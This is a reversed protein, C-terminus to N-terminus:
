LSAVFFFETISYSVPMLPRCVEVKKARQDGTTASFGEGINRFFIRQQFGSCDLPLGLEGLYAKVV